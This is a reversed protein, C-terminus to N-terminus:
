RVSKRPRPTRMRARTLVLHTKLAALYNTLATTSETSQHLSPMPRIRMHLTALRSRSICSTTRLTHHLQYHRPHRHLRHHEHAPASSHTSRTLSAKSKNSEDTMLLQDLTFFRATQRLYRPHLTVMHSEVLNSFSVLASNAIPRVGDALERYFFEGLSAYKTLDPERMEDLNCGFIWAYLRFGTPRM